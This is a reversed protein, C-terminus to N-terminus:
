NNPAGSELWCKIAKMEADPLPGSIPMDKDILVRTNIASRVLFVQNYNLLVVGGAGTNNHCGATACKTAIIPAINASYKAAVTSCDSPNNNTPYLIDAKNYNCSLITLTALFFCSTTLIFKNIFM